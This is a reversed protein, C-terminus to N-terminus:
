EEEDGSTKNIIFQKLHNAEVLKLGKISLDSTSGGATYVRLSALGFMRELPGQKVESHQIRNFPILTKSKWFLGERYSIDKTRVAYGKKFFGFYAILLSLLALLVFTAYVYNVYPFVVERYEEDSSNFKVSVGLVIGIVLWTFFTRLMGATLYDKHLEKYVINAVAPLESIDIQTNSFPM